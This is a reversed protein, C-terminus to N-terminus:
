KKMKEKKYNTLNNEISKNTWVGDKLYNEVLEKSTNEIAKIENGIEEFSSGRGDEKIEIKGRLDNTIETNKKIIAEAGRGRSFDSTPKGAPSESAYEPSNLTENIIKISNQLESIRANQETTRKEAPTNVIEQIEVVAEKREKTLNDIEVEKSERSVQTKTTMEKNASAIDGSTEFFKLMADFAGQKFQNTEGSRAVTGMIEMLQDVTKIDRYVGLNERLLDKIFIKTQQMGSQAVKQYYVEPKSLMEM